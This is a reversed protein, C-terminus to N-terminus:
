IGTVRVRMSVGVHVCLGLKFHMFGESVCVCVGM